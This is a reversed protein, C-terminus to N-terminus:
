SLVVARSAALSLPSASPSVASPASSEPSSESDVAASPPQGAPNVAHPSSQRSRVRGAFQPAQPLAHVTVGFAAGVQVAPIHEKSHLAPYESQLPAQTSSVVEALQPLQPLIHLPLVPTHAPAAPAYEHTDPHGDAAGVLQLPLQTSVVLSAFLQLAHPLAHVVLTALAWATHTLLAHEIAHSVPYVSQLPAQTRSVVEALQPLQPTVHLPFVGAHTAEPLEYAHAEPQVDAVGVIQLPVQVFRVLSALLQLVHPLAHEVSTALAAGAHTLLAHVKAHALPYLRQLPAHTNKEVSLWLQPPQPDPCAQLPLVGTQEFAVHLEPQGVAVGVSHLPVQVSVVLLALWQPVHEVPHEVLTALAVASHLALAQVKAHLLPYLRQLPAHTSKEVLEFLQPPQPDAYAHVVLMALAVAEHLPPAHETAHL